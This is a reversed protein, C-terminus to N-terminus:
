GAPGLIRVESSAAIRLVADQGEAFPSRVFPKLEHSLRELKHSGSQRVGLQDDAAAIM